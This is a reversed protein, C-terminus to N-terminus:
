FLIDLHQFFGFFELNIGFYKKKRFNKYDKFLNLLKFIFECNCSVRVNPMGLDAAGASPFFPFIGNRLFLIIEQLFIIINELDISNLLNESLILLFIM